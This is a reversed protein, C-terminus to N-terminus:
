KMTIEAALMFLLGTSTRWHYKSYSLIFIFVLGCFTGAKLELGVNNSHKVRKLHNEFCPTTSCCRASMNHQVHSSFWVLFVMCRVWVWSLVQTQYALTLFFCVYLWVHMKNSDNPRYRSRFTHHGPDASSPTLGTEYDWKGCIDQTQEEEELIHATLVPHEGRPIMPPRTPWSPHTPLSPLFSASTFSLLPPLVQSCQSSDIDCPLGVCEALTIKMKQMQVAFLCGSSM